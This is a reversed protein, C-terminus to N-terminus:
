SFKEQKPIRVPQVKRVFLQKSGTIEERFAGRSSHELQVERALLEKSALTKERVRFIRPAQIKRTSAGKQSELQAKRVRFIDQQNVPALRPLPPLFAYILLM